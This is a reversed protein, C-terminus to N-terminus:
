NESCESFSEFLFEKKLTNKRHINKFDIKTEKLTSYIKVNKM